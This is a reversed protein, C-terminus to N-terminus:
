PMSIQHHFWASIDQIEKECVEHGMPYRHFQYKDFGAINLYDCSIEAWKLPVLTDATGHGWFIPLTYNKKNAETMLTKGLPLYASLVILGGLKEPYRLGAYLISAGGQSFGGLFINQPLLGLQIQHHVLQHIETSSKELGEKDERAELTLGTIDYWARMVYGNNLTVPRLPAHPFIFRIPKPMLKQLSQALPVFDNGDAGLGHLWIVAYEAKEGSVPEITINDLMFIEM